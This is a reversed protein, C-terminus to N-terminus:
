EALAAEVMEEVLATFTYTPQWGLVRRAKSADGTLVEVEAPRYFDPSVAVVTRGTAEDIGVEDVGEGQWRIIMGVKKFAIEALERVSHVQGTALVYDDGHPQQLMLWMGEVYDRAHGWDRKADLNGLTLKEQRGAAVAVAGIIAKQTVFDKGRFPSEHNFLIGNSGHLGYGERYNRVIWYSFLKSVGYPSRPHFPTDENQPTERVLGFLESTSAQYFKTTEMLGLTRICELLRLTGLADVDATYEPIDFSIRVHSQAGLNYVEDFHYENFLKLLCGTDTLDGYHYQLGGGEELGRLRVLNEQSTRRKLAHIRYDRELLFEVLYGGDQGTVGTIFATKSM